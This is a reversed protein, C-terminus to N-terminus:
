DRITVSPDEDIDARISTDGDRVNVELGDASVSVSDDGSADTGDTEVVVTETVAPAPAVTETEVVTTDDAADDADGCASLALAAVGAFLFAITKM